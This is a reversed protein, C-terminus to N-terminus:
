RAALSTLHRERAAAQARERGAKEEARRQAALPERGERAQLVADQLEAVTRTGEPDPVPNSDTLFRRVFERSVDPDGSALRILVDEKERAPLRAVWRRLQAASPDNPNLPESAEAAASLLDEDLRLFEVVARLAGSLEALGPPVPPELEDEELVGADVSLLWALYLLRRDGVALEARM